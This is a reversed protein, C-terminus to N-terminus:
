LVLTCLSSQKLLFFAGSRTKLQKGKMQKTVGSVIKPVLAKLLGILNSETQRRAFQGTQKLLDSFTSFVDLKVNEERESFRTILVPAVNAYLDQLREPRTVIIADLCKTASRRVKWSMDDDDSYNEADDDDDEEEEEDEEMPDEYNPDHGIYSLCLKQIQDFFPTIDKPCRLVLSEFCQFCNEKLEDDENSGDCYKMVKPLIDNLFKGLRYGVSRSVASIAQMYTRLEEPNTKSSGIYNVLNNVMENFINDPTTIALFGLCSTAKKRTVSRKSRLEPQIVKLVSEHDDTMHTGFKELLANLVDLCTGVIDPNADKAGIATVLRPTVRKVMQAPLDAKDPPINTIVAKLSISALDRLEDKGKEAVLCHGTLTDVMLIHQDKIKKSLPGMCKVAQEQVQNSNDSLLRLVSETIKKESDADMKFTDKQLEAGLDALAM